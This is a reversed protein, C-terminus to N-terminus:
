VNNKTVFISDYKKNQIYEEMITEDDTNKKGGYFTFDNQLADYNKNIYGRYVNIRRHSKKCFDICTRRCDMKCKDIFKKSSDSGQVFMISGPFSDFFLPITSLVTNFVKYVDGNETSVDDCIQDTITDYDGFALNYVLKGEFDALCTYSIAKVINSNGNSTFYYKVGTETKQGKIVLYHPSAM